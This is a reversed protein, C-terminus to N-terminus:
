GASGKIFFYALTVMFRPDSGSLKKFLGRIWLECVRSYFLMFNLNIIGQVFDLPNWTHVLPRNQCFVSHKRDTLMWMIKEDLM